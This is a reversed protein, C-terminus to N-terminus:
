PSAAPKFWAKNIGDQEIWGEGPMWDCYIVRAWLRPNPPVWGCTAAGDGSKQRVRTVTNLRGSDDKGPPRGSRVEVVDGKLVGIQPPVHLMMDTSFPNGCCFVRGMVVSGDKIESDKIGSSLLADHVPKSEVIEKQTAVYIVLAVRLSGEPLFDSQINLTNTACSTLLICGVLIGLMTARRM